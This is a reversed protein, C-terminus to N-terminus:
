AYRESIFYEAIVVIKATDCEHGLVLDITDAAAYFKGIAANADTGSIGGTMTGATANLNTSADWASAADGDGVTATATAGEATKVICWVGRVIANAPIKLCQVVDSAACLRKSFDILNESKVLYSGIHKTTVAGDIFYTVTAM